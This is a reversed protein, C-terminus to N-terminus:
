KKANQNRLSNILKSIRAAKVQDGHGIGGEIQPFANPFAYSLLDYVLVKMKRDSIKVRKEKLYATLKTHLKMAKFSYAPPRKSFSELLLRLREYDLRMTDFTDEFIGLVMSDKKFKYTRGETVLVVETLSVVPSDEDIPGFLKLFQKRETENVKGKPINLYGSGLYLEIFVLLPKTVPICRYELLERIPNNGESIYRGSKDTGRKM